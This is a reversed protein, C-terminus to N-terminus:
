FGMNKKEKEILKEYEEKPLTPTAALRIINNIMSFDTVKHGYYQVCDEMSKIRKVKIYTPDYENEIFIPSNFVFSYGLLNILDKFDFEDQNLSFASM